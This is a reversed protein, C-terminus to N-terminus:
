RVSKRGTLKHVNADHGANLDVVLHHVTGLLALLDTYLDFRDGSLCGLHEASM